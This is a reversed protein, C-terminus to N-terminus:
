AAVGFLLRRLHLRASWLERIPLRTLSPAADDLWRGGCGSIAVFATIQKLITLLTLFILGRIRLLFSIPCGNLISADQSSDLCILFAILRNILLYM